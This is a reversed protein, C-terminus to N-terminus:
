YDVKGEPKKKLKLCGDFANGAVGKLKCEKPVIVQKLNKCNLFANYWISKCESSLKIKELSEAGMFAGESIDVVSDPVEFEKDKKGAPYAILIKKDKTYLVGDVSCYHKNNRDVDIKICSQMDGFAPADCISDVSEPINVSTIEGCGNFTCFGLHNIGEPINVEGSKQPACVVLIRRAKDDEDKEIMIGDSVYYYPNDKDVEIEEIYPCGNLYSLFEGGAMGIEEISIDSELIKADKSFIIKKATGGNFSTLFGDYVEGTVYVTQGDDSLSIKESTEDDTQEKAKGSDAEREQVRANNKIGSCGALLLASCLVVIMGKFGSNM